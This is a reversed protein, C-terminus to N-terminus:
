RGEGPTYPRTAPRVSAALPRRARGAGHGAGRRVRLATQGGPDPPPRRAPRRARRGRSHGRDRRARPARRSAGPPLGRNDARVRLLGGDSGIQVMEQDEGLSLQFIRSNAQNLFRLRYRRAAVRLYPQPRGNVLITPYFPQGNYVLTGDADFQADRLALVIDHRGSPLCLRRDAEDEILYTGALGRYVNEAEAMHTHDHYWLTASCQDNPYHYVRSAGPAISDTPYGDDIHRVHAGHLHVTVPVSLENSQEVLVPRGRRALLTPGPFRGDFTWLRTHLGPVVEVDAEKIRMRYVDHTPTRFTPRLVPPNLLPRIFPEPTPAPGTPGAAHPAPRADAAAPVGPLPVAAAAGALAMARLVHRRNPMTM